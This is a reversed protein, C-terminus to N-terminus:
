KLMPCPAGVCRWLCQFRSFPGRFYAAVPQLDVASGFYANFANDLLYIFLQLECLAVSSQFCSANAGTTQMLQVFSLTFAM